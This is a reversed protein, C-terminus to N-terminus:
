QCSKVKQQSDPVDLVWLEGRKLGQHAHQNVNNTEEPTALAKKPSAGKKPSNQLNHNILGDLKEEAAALERRIREMEANYEEPNVDDGANNRQDKQHM